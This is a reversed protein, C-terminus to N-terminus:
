EQCDYRRQQKAKTEQRERYLGAREGEDRNKTEDYVTANM